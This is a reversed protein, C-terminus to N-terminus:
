AQRRMLKRAVSANSESAKREQSQRHAKSHISASSHLHQDGGYGQLVAYDVLSDKHSKYDHSEDGGYDGARDHM